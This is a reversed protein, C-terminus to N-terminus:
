SIDGNYPLIYVPVLPVHTLKRNLFPPDESRADEETVSAATVRIPIVRVRM